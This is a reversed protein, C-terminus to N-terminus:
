CVGCGGVCAGCHRLLELVCVFHVSSMSCMAVDSNTVHCGFSLRCTLIRQEDNNQFITLM